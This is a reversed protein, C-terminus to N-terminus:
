NIYFLHYCIPRIPKLLPLHSETELSSHLDKSPCCGWHPSWQPSWLHGLPGSVQVNDGTFSCYIVKEASYSLSLSPEPYSLIVQVPVSVNETLIPPPPPDVVSPQTLLPPPPGVGNEGMGMSRQSFQSINTM